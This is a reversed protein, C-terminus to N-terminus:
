IIISLTPILLEVVVYVLGALAGAAVSLLNILSLVTNSM